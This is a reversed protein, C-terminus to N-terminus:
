DSGSKSGFQVSITDSFNPIQGMKPWDSEIQPQSKFGKPKPCIRDQEIGSECRSSWKNAISLFIVHVLVVFTFLKINCNLMTKKKEDCDYNNLRTM